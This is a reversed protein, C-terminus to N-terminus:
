GLCVLDILNGVVQCLHARASPELLASSMPRTAPSQSGADVDKLASTARHDCPQFVLFISNLVIREM